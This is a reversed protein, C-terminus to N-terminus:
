AKSEGIGSADLHRVKGVGVELHPQAVARQQHGARVVGDRASDDGQNVHGAIRREGGHGTYSSTQVGCRRDGHRVIRVAVATHTCAVVEKRAGVHDGVVGGGGRLRGGDADHELVAASGRVVVGAGPVGRTGVHDNAFRHDVVDHHRQGFARRVVQVDIRQHRRAHHQVGAVVGHSVLDDRHRARTAATRQRVVKGTGHPQRRGREATTHDAGVRTEGESVDGCRAVVGRTVVTEHDAHTHDHGVGVITGVVVLAAGRAGHAGAQTVVFRTEIGIGRDYAGPRWGDRHDLRLQGNNLRHVGVEVAVVVVRLGPDIRTVLHPIARGNGVGNAAHVGKVQLEGIGIRAIHIQIVAAQGHHVRCQTVHRVPELPIAILQPDAVARVQIQGSTFADDNRHGTHGRGPHRADGGEVLAIGIHVPAADVAGAVCSAHTVRILAVATVPFAGGTQQVVIHAVIARLHVHVADVFEAAHAPQRVRCRRRHVRCHIRLVHRHALDHTETQHHAHGLAVDVIQVDCGVQRRAVFEQVGTGGPRQHAIVGSEVHIARAGAVNDIAVGCAVDLVREVAAVCRTSGTAGTCGDAVRATHKHQAVDLVKVAIGVTLVQDEFEVRHHAVHCAVRGPRVEHGGDGNAAAGGLQAFGVFGCVVHDLRLDASDGLIHDIGRRTRLAGGGGDRHAIREVRAARIRRRSVVHHQRVVKRAALAAGVHKLAQHHAARGVCRGVRSRGSSCADCPCHAGRADTDVEVPQGWPCADLQAIRHLNGGVRFLRGRRRGIGRHGPAAQRVTSAGDRARAERARRYTRIGRGAALAVAAARCGVGIGAAIRGAVAGDASDQPVVGVVAVAGDIRTFDTQGVLGHLQAPGSRVADEAVGVVSHHGGGRVRAALVAEAGQRSCPQHRAVVADGRRGSDRQGNRATRNGVVRIGQRRPPIGVSARQAGDAHCQSFAGGRDVAVHAIQLDVVRRHDGDGVARDSEDLAHVAGAAIREPFVAVHQTCRHVQARHGDRVGFQVAVWALQVVETAGRQGDAAAVGGIIPEVGGALIHQAEVIRGQHGAAVEHHAAARNAAEGVHTPLQHDGEVGTGVGGRDVGHGAGDGVGVAGIRWRGIDRQAEAEIIRVVVALLAAAPRERPIGGDDDVDRRLVIRRIGRVVGVAHGLGVALGGRAGADRAVQAVVVVAAVAHVAVRLGRQGIQDDGLDPRDSPRGFGDRSAADGHVALVTREGDMGIAAVGVHEIFTM